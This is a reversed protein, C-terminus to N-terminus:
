KIVVVFLGPSIPLIVNLILPGSSTLKSQGSCVVSVIVEIVLM